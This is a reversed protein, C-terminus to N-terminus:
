LIYSSKRNKEEKIKCYVQTFYSMSIIAKAFGRAGDKFGGYLFFSGFFYIPGIWVSQMIKYKLKQKWTWHNSTKTQRLANLFREAEWNSYENHKIIINSVGRFEMHDIKSRIIGVKGVLVPHEHVEMDLHSWRDEDVKEYEGAGIQFLAQKRLPYGGKLPKGLFHVTYCLCYGVKDESNLKERLEKKFDETLFEDADLFFIWKTELTHNRLFWNRKKPFKGNWKFDVVEAGYKLAIEITRDTSGSDIVVIHRALDSGISELCGVLNKEENKVPIAITLDLTQTM